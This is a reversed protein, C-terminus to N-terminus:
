PGGLIERRETLRDEVLENDLHRDFCIQLLRPSALTARLLTTM